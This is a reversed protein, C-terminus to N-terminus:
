ENEEGRVRVLKVEEPRAYCVEGERSELMLWTPTVEKVTFRKGKRWKLLERTVLRVFIIDRKLAVIDGVEVTGKVHRMLRKVIEKERKTLKRM